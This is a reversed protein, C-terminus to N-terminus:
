FIQFCFMSPSTFYRPTIIIILLIIDIIIIVRRRRSPLPPARRIADIPARRARAARVSRARARAAPAAHHDMILDILDITVAHTAHCFAADDIFVFYDLSLFPLCSSYYWRRCSLEIM